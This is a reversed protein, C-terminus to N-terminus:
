ISISEDVRRIFSILHVRLSRFAGRFYDVAFHPNHEISYSLKELEILVDKQVNEFLTFEPSKPNLFYAYPYSFRLISRAEVIINHIEHIFGIADNEKMDNYILNTKLRHLFQPLNLQELKENQIQADYLEQYHLFRKYNIEKSLVSDSGYEPFKSCNFGYGHKTWDQGCNWCFEYGCYCTMHHCGGNKNIANKCKPCFKTNETLWKANLSEENIERKWRKFRECTLPAHAFEKCKWCIRFGCSCEVVFCYRIGEIRLIKDCSPSICRTLGPNVSVRHDLIHEQYLESFQNNSLFKVNEVSLPCSCQICNIRFDTKSHVSIHNQWCDLCSFHGCAPSFMKGAECTSWCIPCDDEETSSSIQLQYKSKSEPINLESLLENRNLTLLKTCEWQYAQLVFRSIDESFFLFQSILSVDKEQNDFLEKECFVNQPPLVHRPVSSSIALSIPESNGEENPEESYLIKELFNLLDQPKMKNLEKLYPHIPPFVSLINIAKKFSKSNTTILDFIEELEDSKEPSILLSIQHAIQTSVSQFSM